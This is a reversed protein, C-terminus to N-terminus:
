IALGLLVHLEHRTLAMLPSESVVIESLRQRSETDLISGLTRFQNSGMTLQQLGVIPISRHGLRLIGVHEAPNVGVAGSDRFRGFGGAVDVSLGDIASRAAIEMIRNRAHAGAVVILKAASLRLIRALYRRACPTSAAAVGKEGQSKCHVVETLVLDRAPDFESGIIERGLDFSKLWYRSKNKEYKGSRALFAGDEVRVFPVPLGQDFRRTQFEVVRSLPWDPHLVTPDDFGGLPFAEQEAPKEKFSIAPNSSLIMVRARVLNGVWAEPLQRFGGSRKREKVQERINLIEYCPDGSVSVGKPIRACHSIEAALLEAEQLQGEIM